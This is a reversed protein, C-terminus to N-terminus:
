DMYYTSDKCCNCASYFVTSQALIFCFAWLLWFSETKDKKYISKSNLRRFVSFDVHWSKLYYDLIM